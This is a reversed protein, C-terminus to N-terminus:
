KGDNVQVIEDSYDEAEDRAGSATSCHAELTASARVPVAAISSM